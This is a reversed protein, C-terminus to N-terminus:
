TSNRQQPGIMIDGTTGAHKSGTSDKSFTHTVRYPKYWNTITQVEQGKYQTSSTRACTSTRPSRGQHHQWTSCGQHYHLNPCGQLYGDTSTARSKDTHKITTQQTTDRTTKSCNYCPPSGPLFIKINRHRKGHTSSTKSNKFPQLNHRQITAKWMKSKVHSFIYPM